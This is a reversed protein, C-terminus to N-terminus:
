QQLKQLYIEYNYSKMKKKIGDDNDGKTKLFAICVEVSSVKNTEGLCL